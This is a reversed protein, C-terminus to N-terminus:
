YWRYQDGGLLESHPEACVLLLAPYNAKSV